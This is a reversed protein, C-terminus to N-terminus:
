RLNIEYHWYYPCPFGRDDKTLILDISTPDNGKFCTPQKTLNEFDHADCFDKLKLYESTMKFDGLLLINDYNTQLDNLQNPM